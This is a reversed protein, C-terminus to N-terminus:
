IEAALMQIVKIEEDSLTKQNTDSPPEDSLLYGAPVTLDVDDPVLLEAFRKNDYM